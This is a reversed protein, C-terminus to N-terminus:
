KRFGGGRSNGTTGSPQRHNNQPRGQPQGNQKPAAPQRGTNGEPRASQVPRRGQQPQAMPTHGTHPIRAPQPAPTRMVTQKPAPAKRQPARPATLTRKPMTAAKPPAKPPPPNIRMGIMRAVAQDAHGTQRDRIEIGAAAVVLRAAIGIRGTILVNVGYDRLIDNVDYKRLFGRAQVLETGTIRGGFVDYIKVWPSRSYHQYIMGADYTVAIRM